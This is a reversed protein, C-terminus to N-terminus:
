LCAISSGSGTARRNPDEVREEPLSVCVVGSSHRVLFAMQEPTIKEAAIILDGENERSVDDAVVVFGGKRIADIATEISDYHV